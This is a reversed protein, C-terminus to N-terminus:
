APRCPPHDAALQEVVRAGVRGGDPALQMVDAPQVDQEAPRPRDDPLQLLEECHPLRLRSAPLTSGTPGEQIDAGPGAVDGDGRGGDRPAAADVQLGDADFQVAGRRTERPAVPHM